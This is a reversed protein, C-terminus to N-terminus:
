EPNDVGTCSQKPLATLPMDGRLASLDLGYPFSAKAMDFMNQEHKLVNLVTQELLALATGRPALEPVATAMQVLVARWLTHAPDRYVAAAVDCGHEELWDAVVLHSDRDSRHALDIMPETWFTM